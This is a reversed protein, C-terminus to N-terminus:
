PKKTLIENIFPNLEQILSKAGIESLHDTDHFLWGEASNNECVKKPCFINLTNIYYDTVKNNEWFINDRFPIESFKRKSMLGDEIRTRTPRLEPTSGIHIVAANAKMLVQLNERVM